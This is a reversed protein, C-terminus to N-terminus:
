GHKRLGLRERKSPMHEETKNEEAKIQNLAKDIEVLPIFLSDNISILYEGNVIRVNLREGEDLTVKYEKFKTDINNLLTGITSLNPVKQKIEELDSTVLCKETNYLLIEGTAQDASIILNDEVLVNILSDVLSYYFGEYVRDFAKLDALYDVHGFMKVALDTYENISDKFFRFLDLNIKDGMKIYDKTLEILEGSPTTLEIRNYKM